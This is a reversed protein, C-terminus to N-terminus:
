VSSATKKFPAMEMLQANDSAVWGRERGLFQAVAQSFGPDPMYHLSYTTSPVYGRALKHEGQAGAEVRGLGRAIALEIAQYYCLEFHLCNHQELTGWYRGFLADGGIFNLAGAIARGERRALCLAIREPMAAGILSFFRRNLYPRGWKRQGTDMYFAFFSDWDAETIQDGILWEISLGSAAAERRERRVAKRKRSALAALFDEFSTYGDNYWHFQQGTRQLLGRAAGHEWEARTPFTLHLSSLDHDATLERAAEILADARWDLPGGRVLLRRGTVPTFPVAAQLKPYYRGGAREYADAWAHDFVFEGMSHGKLYLPMAGLLAGQADELLLHHPGWGTAPAVSGSEELALLFAHSVFPDYAAGDPNACADWDHAPVEAISQVLRVRVKDHTTM